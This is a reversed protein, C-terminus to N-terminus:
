KLTTAIDNATFTQKALRHKNRLDHRNSTHHKIQTSISPQQSHIQLFRFPKTQYINPRINPKIAHKQKQNQYHLFDFNILFLLNTFCDFFTVSTFNRKLTCISLAKFGTELRSRNSNRQTHFDEM